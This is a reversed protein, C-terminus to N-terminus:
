VYQKIFVKKLSLIRDYLKGHWCGINKLPQVTIWEIPLNFIIYDWIPFMLKWIKVCIFFVTFIRIHEDEDQDFIDENGYIGLLTVILYLHIWQKITEEEINGIYIWDSFGTLEIKWAPM